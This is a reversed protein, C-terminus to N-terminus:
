ASGAASGSAASGSAAASASASGAASASGSASAAASAAASGSAAATGRILSAATLSAMSCAFAAPLHQKQAMGLSGEPSSLLSSVKRCYPEVVWTSPLPRTRAFFALM